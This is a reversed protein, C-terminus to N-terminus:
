VSTDLEQAVIDMPVLVDARYYNTGGLDALDSVVIGNGVRNWEATRKRNDNIIRQTEGVIGDWRDPEGVGDPGTRQGFLRNYADDYGVDTSRSAARYEIVVATEVEQHTWGLGQPTTETDAGTAVYGVDQTRLSKQREKKELTFTPEPVDTDRGTISTEWDRELLNKIFEVESM